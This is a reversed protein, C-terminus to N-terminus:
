HNNTTQTDVRGAQGILLRPGMVEAVALAQAMRHVQRAPSTEGPKLSLVAQHLMRAYRSSDTMKQNTNEPNMAERPQSTPMESGADGGNLLSCVWM